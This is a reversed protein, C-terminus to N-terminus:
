LAAVRRVSISHQQALATFESATIRRLVRRRKALLSPLMSLIALHARLVLWPLMWGSHGSTRFDAAAGKGSFLYVVHWFYRACAAFPARLLMGLPFNKLATAIRNREVYYAKLPSARGASQSYAHDVIAGPVYLCDWGAWRGRLGLDTDECYLFYDEDFMGTTNLMTRRYLSASGSPFFAPAADSSTDVPERHHRQKASGDAALLMGASDLLATGSLRVQSAFMGAKPNARAARVLEALWEAHPVADDNLAALLPAESSRWAQNIAAGFGVNERNAIIRARTGAADARGKGSNDIVVVDFDSFTQSELARLCDAL